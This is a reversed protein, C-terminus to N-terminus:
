SNLSPESSRAIAGPASSLELVHAQLWSPTSWPHIHSAHREFLRTLEGSTRVLGGTVVMMNLDMLAAIPQAGSPDIIHEVVIVRSEAQMAGRGCRLIEVVKGDDWDHLIWKLLYADAGTPISKFFDGAVKRCRPAVEPLVGLAGAAEIVHAQDLLTGQLNGHTKLLEALFSGDGGGVDVIHEFRGFDIVGM